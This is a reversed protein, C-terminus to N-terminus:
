VLGCLPQCILEKELYYYIDVDNSPLNIQKALNPGVNTFFFCTKFDM